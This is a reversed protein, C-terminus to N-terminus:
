SSSSPPSTTGTSRLSNAARRSGSTGSAGVCSLRTMAFYPSWGARWGRGFALRPSLTVPEEGYWSEAGSTWAVYGLRHHAAAALEGVVRPLRQQGGVRRQQPLEGRVADPGVQGHPLVVHEVRQGLVLFRQADAFQGPVHQEALRGQGTQHVPQHLPSEQTATRVGDVAPGHPNGQGGGAPRPLALHAQAVADTDGTQELGAQGDLLQPLQLRQAALEGAGGIRGNLVGVLVM